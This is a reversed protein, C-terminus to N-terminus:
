AVVAPNPRRRSDRGTAIAGGRVVEIIGYPRMMEIYNSVKDSSGSIELTVVKASMDVAKASFVDTIQLIELRKAPDSNVKILALEREIIKSDRYDTVKIVDVLRNLQKTIQEVIANDGHVYITIRSVAPDETHGVALSEINYARASFLGAIRALVGFQNEVLISIVHRM